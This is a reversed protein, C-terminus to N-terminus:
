LIPIISQTKCFFAGVIETRLYVVWRWKFLKKVREDSILQGCVLESCNSVLWCFGDLGLSPGVRTASASIGVLPRARENMKGMTSWDWFRSLSLQGTGPGAGTGERYARCGRTGWRGLEPLKILDMNSSLFRLSVQGADCPQSSFSCHFGSKEWEVLRGGGVMGSVACEANGPSPFRTYVGSVCASVVPHTAWRGRKPSAHKGFHTGHFRLGPLHETFLAQPWGLRHCDSHERFYLTWMLRNFTRLLGATLFVTQKVKNLCQFKGPRSSMVTHIHTHTHIDIYYTHTHKYVYIHYIISFHQKQCIPFMIFTFFHFGVWM